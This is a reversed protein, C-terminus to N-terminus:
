SGEEVLQPELRALREEAMELKLKLNAIRTVDLTKAVLMGRCRRFRARAEPDAEAEIQADIDAEIAPRIAAIFAELDMTM